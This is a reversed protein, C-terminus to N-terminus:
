PVLADGYVFRHDSGYYESRGLRNDSRATVFGQQSAGTARDAWLLYDIRQSPNAAPNTAKRADGDDYAGFVDYADSGVTDNFDSAVIRAKAAPYKAMQEDIWKKLVQAELKRDADDGGSGWVLKGSFFGFQKQTGKIRLIVGRFRVYYNSDLVQVTKFGLDAVFEIRDTRWYAGIGSGKQNVGQESVKYDWAVGTKAELISDIKASYATNIEEIGVVDAHIADFLAAGRNMTEWNRVRCKRDICENCGVGTTTTCANSCQSTATCSAGYQNYPALRGAYYPNMQVVRVRGPAAAEISTVVDAPDEPAVETSEDAEDGGEDSMVDVDAVCASLLGVLALGLLLAHSAFFTATSSSAHSARMRPVNLV